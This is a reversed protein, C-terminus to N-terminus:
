RGGLKNAGYLISVMGALNFPIDPLTQKTYVVYGAFVLYFAIIVFILVRSSSLKGSQESVLDSLKM